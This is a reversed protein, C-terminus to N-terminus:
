IMWMWVRCAEYPFADSTSESVDLKKFHPHTDRVRAMVGALVAVAQGPTLELDARAITAAIPHAPDAIVDLGGPPRLAKLAALIESYLPGTKWSKFQRDNVPMALAVARVDPSPASTLRAAATLRERLFEAGAAGSFDGDRWAPEVWIRGLGFPITLPCVPPIGAVDPYPFAAPAPLGIEVARATAGAIWDATFNTPTPKSGASRRDCVRRAGALLAEFVLDAVPESMLSM